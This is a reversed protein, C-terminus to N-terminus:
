AAEQAARAALVRALGAGPEPLTRVLQAAPQEFIGVLQSMPATIVGLLKARLEDLSPMDALAKVGGEDLVQPGLIGGVLILKENEKAFDVAVKTAAVPDRSIAVGVPGTFLDAGASGPTDQLAIKALRNKVVKFQAEKARLRTRLDTMEAVSMGAYRAVVIVGADAFVGRLADVTEAKQVRDM